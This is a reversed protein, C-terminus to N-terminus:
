RWEGAPPTTSHPGSLIPIGQSADLMNQLHQEESHRDELEQAAQAAEEDEYHNDIVTSVVVGTAAGVAGGVVTGVVPFGATGIAAGTAGGTLMGAFLGGGQSALAQETSEGNRMDDYVGYGAAVPGLVGLGRVLGSPLRPRGAGAAADAAEDAAQASRGMLEDVEDYFGRYPVGRERLVEMLESALARLRQSEALKHAAQASLVASQRRLLAASYGAVLLDVTVQTLVTANTEVFDATQSLAEVWQDVLEDRRTRAADYAEAPAGARLILEGRLTMGAVVAETRVAAMGLHVVELTAALAELQRGMAGVVDSVDDGARGLVAARETFASGAEGEWARGLRARQVAVTDALDTVGSSLVDSLYRAAARLDDPNGRVRTDIM